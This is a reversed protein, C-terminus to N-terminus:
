TCAELNHAHGVRIGPVDTIADALEMPPKPTAKKGVRTPIKKARTKNQAMTCDMKASALRCKRRALAVSRRRCMPQVDTRLFAGVSGYADTRYLSTSSVM